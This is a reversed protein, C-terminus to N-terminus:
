DARILFGSFTTYRHLHTVRPTQSHLAVKQGAAVHVVVAIANNDWNGLTQDSISRAVWSSGVFIGADVYERKDEDMFNARFQYLGSVPATFFGTQPDYANGINTLVHDSIIVGNPPVTATGSVHSDFAVLKQVKDLQAQQANYKATLSAVQQSLKEVVTELPSPDDSRKERREESDLPESSVGITLCLFMVVVGSYAM